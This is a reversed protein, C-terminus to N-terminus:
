AIGHLCSLRAWLRDSSLRAVDAISNRLPLRYTLYLGAGSITLAAIVYSATVIM